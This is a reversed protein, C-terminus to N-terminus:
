KKDQYAHDAPVDGGSWIKKQTWAEAPATWFPDSAPLGLQLMGCLCLYLSGTSIYGERISPQHGVAGVQLWGQADFTGPAEMTRRIVATLAGRVAGPKLEPPLERLLAVDSLLQFAGFRYASSRGIVPFTGEPSIMREQVVAYRQARALIKPYLDGLPNKKEACVRLVELLMPQIVYSNYYDWHFAAGDGYTGDGLYWEEHRQVAYEVPKLDCEGTFQWLAAEITASFLLWNSEYPKITRTAKLAAVVNSRQQSDLRGWLQNPARLLGLALFATDVLPQGGNKFNLFDPSQPDTASALSKVALDIFHARLKGEASDDPGLELWPAIGALARGFAELPAFNTRSREWDHTPIKQKLKGDALATLVPEAIRTMTQVAFARDDAGTQAPSNFAFFVAALPLWLDAGLHSWRSANFITPRFNM